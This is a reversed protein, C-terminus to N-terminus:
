AAISRKEVPPTKAVKDFVSVSLVVPPYQEVMWGVLELPMGFWSVVKAALEVFQELTVGAENVIDAVPSVTRYRISRCHVAVPDAVEVVHLKPPPVDFLLVAPPELEDLCM